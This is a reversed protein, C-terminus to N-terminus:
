FSSTPAHHLSHGLHMLQIGHKRDGQRVWWGDMGQRISPGEQHGEEAQGGRTAPSGSRHADHFVSALGQPSSLVLKLKHYEVLFFFVSFYLDRRDEYIQLLAAWTNGILAACVSSIISRLFKRAVVLTCRSWLTLSDIMVRCVLSREVEMGNVCLLTLRAFFPVLFTEIPGM